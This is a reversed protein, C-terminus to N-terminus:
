KKMQLDSIVIMGEPKLVRYFEALAEKVQHPYLHELNHSSFVADFAAGGHCSGNYGTRDSQKQFFFRMKCIYFDFHAQFITGSIQIKWFM